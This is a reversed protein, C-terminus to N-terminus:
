IVFRYRALRGSRHAANQAWEPHSCVPRIGSDDREGRLGAFFVAEGVGAALVAPPWGGDARAPRAVLRPPPRVPDADAVLLRVPEAVARPVAEGARGSREAVQVWPRLMAPARARHRAVPIVSASKPLGITAIALENVWNTGPWTRRFSMPASTASATA